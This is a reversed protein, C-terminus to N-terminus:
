HHRPRNTHATSRRSRQDALSNRRRNQRKTTTEAQEAGRGLHQLLSGISSHTFFMDVLSTPQPLMLQLQAHIKIMHVSTGGLDFINDTLQVGEIGLTDQWVNIMTQALPDDVLKSPMSQAETTTSSAHPLQKRDVKGNASLPLSPLSLLTAPVMYQPLNRRLHRVLETSFDQETVTTPIASREEEAAQAPIGAVLGHMFSLRPGKDPQSSDLLSAIKDFVFAGIQCTALGFGPAFQELVQTMLGAELMSLRKAHAGYFPEIANLDSALLLYCAASEVVAATSDPFLDNSLHDGKQLLVLHHTDPAYYYIGPALGEVRDPKIFLYAQVPYLGGASAYHYRPRTPDPTHQYLCGLWQALSRLSIPAPDYARCASSRWPLVPLTSPELPLRPYADLDNRVAPETWRKRRRAKEERRRSEGERVYYGVLRRASGKGQMDAVAASVGPFSLMQAEIEGLEVRFGNIKVQSDRRGLFEINGDPLLRGLDGTRYLRQGNEPHRIFAADTRQPDRWYGHALGIGSIYIEGTVWIPTPQLEENLVHMGQNLMAKGYPISSWNPDITDIPYIISWISAETAGGLSIVRAKPCHKRIGVPLQVPIWDGSLMVLRLQPNHSHAVERLYSVYIDMLAPVSNWLTVKHTDMVEVWHSPELQREAEPYVLAGGVALPGFIDYVSLDFSLASLALVRDNQDVSFRQNIDAITNLAGRHDIVVGKPQGTSGSTFIVYAPDQPRRTSMLPHFQHAQAELAEIEIVEYEQAHDSDWDTTATSILYRIGAQNLTRALREKGQSIDLPVYAGGAELVGLVAIAQRPGKPLLIGVLDGSDLGRKWLGHAVQNARVRLQEYTICEEGALLAPADPHQECRQLVPQHLLGQPIPATTANADAILALQRPPLLEPLVRFWDSDAAALSKLAQCYAQFLDDLMTDPFLGEISDWDYVLDGRDEMVQHDLWVQPTQTINYIIKGLWSMAAAAGAHRPDAQLASTFVVPFQPHNSGKHQEALDRMISVGSVFRHDLDEWLRAQVRRTQEAFPLRGATDLAVPIASTFDGVLEDIDPHMPLRNFLTLNLTFRPSACWRALTYGFLSLLAVSPTCGIAAARQQFRQWHEAPLHGSRREFRPKEISNPACALPLEPGGPLDQLRRRWYDRSQAYLPTERLAELGRVYDAYNLQPPEPLEEGAYLLAWDRSLIDVSHADFILVDFSLHLRLGQKPLLSARIEFLPWKSADLVQHSMEERIALLAQERQADDLTSLDERPFHYYPVEPLVRQRGDPDVLARLMPHRTILQNFTQELRELDMDRCEVEMYGHASINGLEFAGCRGVWYAQQMDTLPFPQFLAQPDPELQPLEYDGVPPRPRPDAADAHATETPLPVPQDPLCTDSLPTSM